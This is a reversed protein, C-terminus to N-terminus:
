LAEYVYSTFFTTVASATYTAPTSSVALWAGNLFQTGEIHSLDISYNSDTTQVKISIIPVVGPAPAAATDHIQIYADATGDTFGFLALLRGVVTGVPALIVNDTVM